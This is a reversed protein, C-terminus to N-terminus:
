QVARHLPYVGAGFADFSGTKVEFFLNGNGESM